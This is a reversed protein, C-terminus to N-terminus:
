NSDGNSQEDFEKIVFGMFLNWDYGEFIDQKNVTFAKGSDGDTIVIHNNVKM